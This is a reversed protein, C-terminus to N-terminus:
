YTKRIKKFHFGQPIEKILSIDFYGFQEAEAIYEIDGKKLKLTFDILDEGLWGPVRLSDIPTLGVYNWVTDKPFKVYVETDNLDSDVNIKRSSKIYFNELIANEPYNELLSKTKLFM